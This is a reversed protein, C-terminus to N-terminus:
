FAILINESISCGQVFAGQTESIIAPLLPNLRNAIVKTVLKHVVNCLSIRQFELISEPKQKKPFLTVFTRNLTPSIPHRHLLSLVVISVDNGIDDWFKYFFFPNLGDPGPAKHPHM